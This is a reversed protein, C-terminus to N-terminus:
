TNTFAEVGVMKDPPGHALMEVPALVVGSSYIMNIRGYVELADTGPKLNLVFPRWKLELFLTVQLNGQPVFLPVHVVDSGDQPMTDRVNGSVHVWLGEFKKAIEQREYTTSSRAIEGCMESLTKPAFVRDAKARETMQFAERTVHPRVEDYRGVIVELTEPPDSREDVIWDIGLTTLGWKATEREYGARGAIRIGNDHQPLDTNGPEVRWGANSFLDHIRQFVADSHKRAEKHRFIRVTARSKRMVELAEDREREISAILRLSEFYQTKPATWIFRWLFFGVEVVLVALVATALGFAVPHLKTWSEPAFYGFAGGVIALIVDRGVKIGGTIQGRERLYATARSDMTTLTFRLDPKAFVLDATM